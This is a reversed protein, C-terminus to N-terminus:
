IIKPAALTHLPYGLLVDYGNLGKYGLPKEVEASVLISSSGTLSQSIGLVKIGVVDLSSQGLLALPELSRRRQAEGHIESEAQIETSGVVIKSVETILGSEAAIESDLSVVKSVSSILDSDGSIESDTSVTKTVESFVRSEISLMSDLSVIKSAESVLSSEISLLSGSSVEKSLESHFNSDASLYSESYLIKHAESYIDSEASLLSEESVVKSVKASIESDGSLTTETSVIKSVEAYLNSDGSLSTKVSIVKSAKSLIEAEAGLLGELQLKRDVIANLSSEGQVESEVPITRILYSSLDSKADLDVALSSVKSPEGKIYSSGSLSSTMGSVKSASVDEFSSKGKLTAEVENENSIDVVLSSTNQLVINESLIIKNPRTELTTLGQITSAVRRTIQSSVKLDSVVVLPISVEGGREFDCELTSTGKLSSNGSLLKDLSVSLSSIGVLDEQISKSLLSDGSIKSEGYFIGKVNKSIFSLGTLETVGQFLVGGGDKELNTDTKEINAVGKLNITVTKTLESTVSLSSSFGELSAEVYQINGTSALLSAKGLLDAKIDQFSSTDVSLFSNGELKENTLYQHKLITSELSSNGIFLAETVKSNNGFAVLSSNGYLNASVEESINITLSTEGSLVAEIQPIRTVKSEFYSSGGLSSSSSRARWLDVSELSSKGTLTESVEMRKSLSVRLSGEGKLLSGAKLTRETNVHVSGLSNFSAKAFKEVFLNGELSATGTWSIPDINQEFSVEAQVSSNGKLTASVNIGTDMEAILSSKSALLLSPLLTEKSLVGELDSHGRLTGQSHLVRFSDVLISSTGKLYALVEESIYLDAHLDSSGSLILPEIDKNFGLSATLQAHGTLVSKVLGGYLYLSSGKMMMSTQPREINSTEWTMGNYKAYRLDNDNKLHYLIHPRDYEDLKLSASDYGVNNSHVTRTIWTGLNTGQVHAYSHLLEYQGGITLGVYVFHAYHDKGISLTQKFATTYTHTGKPLEGKYHWAGTPDQILYNTALGTSVVVHKHNDHIALALVSEKNYNAQINQIFEKIWETPALTATKFSKNSYDGYATVPNDKDLSIVPSHGVFGEQDIIATAGWTGVWEKCGNWHGEWTKYKLKERNIDQVRDMLITLTDHVDQRTSAWTPLNSSGQLYLIAESLRQLEADQNHKVYLALDHYVLHLNGKSDEVFDLDSVDSETDLVEYQWEGYYPKWAHVLHNNWQVYAIHVVDGRGVLVVAKRVLTDVIEPQPLWEKTDHRSYKLYDKNLSNKPNYRSGHRPKRLCSHCCNCRCPATDRKLDLYAIHTEFTSLSVSYVDQAQIESSGLLESSVDYQISIEPLVSGYGRFVSLTSRSSFNSSSLVSAEGSLNGTTNHIKELGATISAKARIILPEIEHIM